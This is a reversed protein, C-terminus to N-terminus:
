KMLNLMNYIWCYRCMSKQGYKIASICESLFNVDTRTADESSWEIDSIKKKAYLLTEKIKKLIQERNLNLKYKIHIDSTPIFVHLRNKKGIADVALDIDRTNHRALACVKSNKIVNSIKKVSDYEKKSSVPFGAEIVDVGMEELKKAIKIKESITMNSGIGQQGDRLTTDFIKIQRM